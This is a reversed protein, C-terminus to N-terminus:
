QRQQCVLVWTQCDSRCLALIKYIKVCYLSKLNIWNFCCLKKTNKLALSYNWHLQYKYKPVNAQFPAPQNMSTFIFVSVQYVFLEPFNPELLFFRTPNQWMSSVNISKNISVPISLHISPHDAHSWYFHPDFFRPNAFFPSVNKSRIIIWRLQVRMVRM